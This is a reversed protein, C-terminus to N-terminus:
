QFYALLLFSVKGFSAQSSTSSPVLEAGLAESKKRGVKQKSTLNAAFLPEAIAISKTQDNIWVVVNHDVLGRANNMM